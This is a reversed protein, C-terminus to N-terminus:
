LDFWEEYPSNIHNITVVKTDANYYIDMNINLETFELVEQGLENLEIGDVEYGYEEYVDEEQYNLIFDITNDEYVVVTYTTDEITRKHTTNFADTEIVDEQMSENDKYCSFLSLAILTISILKKM